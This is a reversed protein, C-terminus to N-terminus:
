KNIKACAVQDLKVQMLCRAGSSDTVFPPFWCWGDRGPPLGLYCRSQRDRSGLAGEGDDEEQKDAHESVAFALATSARLELPARPRRESANRAAAYRM